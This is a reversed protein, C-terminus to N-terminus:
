GSFTRLRTLMFDRGNRYFINDLLEDVELEDAEINQLAKLMDHRIDKKLDALGIATKCCDIANILGDFDTGICIQKVADTIKISKNKGAVWLIHIINNALFRRQTEIYLSQDLDEFDEASWVNTDDPWVPLAAPQSGFFFAAELESVYEVDHPVTLGPLGTEDAFGLIRQDFSLGIIGGSLLINEIDEDYLNISSCNHYTKEFHRSAPKLYVVEFAPGKDEPVKYLYTCRDAISLGTTGAHTCILPQLYTNIEDPDKHTRYLELRAKLSMHKIDVLINKQTMLEIMEKGFDTISNGIPYFLSPNFFQIGHAHNCFLNQQMHCVNIALVSYKKTFKRFNKLYTKKADPADPDDFFCHLGEIILGGFITNAETEYFDAPQKLLKIKYTDAPPTSHLLWNLEENILEFAHKGTAIYNLRDKNILEVRGRDVIGQDGLTTAINQEPAHLVLGFMKVDAELLQSCNAQSDLVENFLKNIGITLNGTITLKAKINDWVSNKLGPDSFQPKLGPHCHFDFFPM